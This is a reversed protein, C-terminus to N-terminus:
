SSAEQPVADKTAQKDILVLPLKKYDTIGPVSKTTGLAFRLTALLLDKVAMILPAEVIADQLKLLQIETARHGTRPRRPNDPHKGNSKPGGPLFPEPNHHAKCRKRWHEIAEKSTLHSMFELEAQNILDHKEKWAEKVEDPLVKYWRMLNYTYGQSLGMVRAFETGKINHREEIDVGAKAVDFDTLEKRQCEEILRCFRDELARNTITSPIVVAKIQEWKLLRAAELRKRGGKLRYVMDKPKTNEPIDQGPETGTAVVIPYVMGSANLDAALSEVEKKLPKEDVHDIIIKDVLLVEAPVNHTPRKMTDKRERPLLAGARETM